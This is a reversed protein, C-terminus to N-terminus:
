DVERNCGPHRPPTFPPPTVVPHARGLDDLCGVRRFLVPENVARGGDNNVSIFEQLAPDITGTFQDPHYGAWPACLVSQVRWNYAGFAIGRTASDYSGRADQAVVWHRIGPACPPPESQAPGGTWSHAEITGALAGSGSTARHVRRVTLTYIMWDGFPPNYRHAQWVGEILDTCTAPPPLRARQEEVTAPVRAPAALVAAAVVARLM